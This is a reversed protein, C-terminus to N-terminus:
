SLCLQLSLSSSILQCSELPIIINSQTQHIHIYTATQTRMEMGVKKWVALVTRQLRLFHLWRSCDACELVNFRISIQSVAVIITAGECYRRKFRESCAKMGLCLCESRKCCHQLNLKACIAAHCHITTMEWGLNSCCTLSSPKQKARSGSCCELLQVM